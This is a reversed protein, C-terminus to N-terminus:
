KADCVLGFVYVANDKGPVPLGAILWSDGADLQTTAAVIRKGKAGDISVGLRLRVKKGKEASKDKLLLEMTGATQLGLRQPTDLTLGADHKKVLRFSKYATFPPKTLKSELRRLKADVGGEAASAEIEYVECRADEAWVAPAAVVLALLAAAATMLLRM